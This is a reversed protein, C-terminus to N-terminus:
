VNEGETGVVLGKKMLKSKHTAVYLDLVMKIDQNTELGVRRLEYELKENLYRSQLLNATYPVVIKADISKCEEIVTKMLTSQYRTLFNHESM